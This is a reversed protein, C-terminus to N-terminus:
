NRLRERMLQLRVEQVIQPHFRPVWGPWPMEPPEVFRYYIAGADKQKMLVGDEIYKYIVRRIDKQAGRGSEQFEPATMTIADFVSATMRNNRIMEQYRKEIDIPLGYQAERVMDTVVKYQRWEIDLCSTVIDERIDNFCNAAFRIAWRMIEEDVVPSEPQNFIAITSAIRDIRMYIRNLMDRVKAPMNASLQREFQEVCDEYLMKAAPTALVPTFRPATQNCGIDHMRWMEGIRALMAAPMTKGKIKVHRTKPIEKKAVITFRAMTGDSTIESTLLHQLVSVDCETIFSISSGTPPEKNNEKSAYDMMPVVSDDAADFSTKLFDMVGSHANGAQLGRQSIKRAESSFEPLNLCLSPTDQLLGIFAPFSTPRSVTVGRKFVTSGPAAGQFGKIVGGIVSKGSGSPGIAMFYNTLGSGGESTVWTRGALGSVCALTAAISWDYQGRTSRDAFHQALDGILGPARGHPGPNRVDIPEFTMNAPGDDASHKQPNYREVDINNRRFGELEALFDEKKNDLCYLIFAGLKLVRRPNPLPDHNFLERKQKDSLEKLAEDELLTFDMAVLEDGDRLDFQDDMHEFAHARLREGYEFLTEGENRAPQILSVKCMGYEDPASRKYGDPLGTQPDVEMKIEDDDEGEEEPEPELQMRRSLPEPQAPAPSRRQVPPTSTSAPTRATAAKPEPKKVPKQPPEFPIDDDDDDDDDDIDDDNFAAKREKDARLQAERIAAMDGRGWAEIVRETEPDLRRVMKNARITQAEEHHSAAKMAGRVKKISTELYGPRQAKERQGLGSEWFATAVEGDDPSCECLIRLLAMDAESQSAYGCDMGDSSEFLRQFKARYKGRATEILDGADSEGHRAGNLDIEGVDEVDGVTQSDIILQVVEDVIAQAEGGMDFPDFGLPLGYRGGKADLVAKGPAVIFRADDYVEIHLSRSHFGKGQRINTDPLYIHVGKGSRSQEVWGLLAVREMLDQKLDEPAGADIDIVTIRAKKRLLVGVEIGEDPREDIYQLVDAKSVNYTADTSAIFRERYQGTRMDRFLGIPRKGSQDFRIIAHPLVDLMAHSKYAM